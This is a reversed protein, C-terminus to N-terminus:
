SARAVGRNHWRQQALGHCWALGSSRSRSRRDHRRCGHGPIRARDQSGRASIPGTADAGHPAPVRSARAEPVSSERVGM